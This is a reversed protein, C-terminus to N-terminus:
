VNESKERYERELFEALRGDAIMIPGRYGCRKCEYIQATTGHVGYVM